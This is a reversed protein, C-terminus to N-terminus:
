RPRADQSVQRGSGVRGVAGDVSPEDQQWGKDSQAVRLHQGERAFPWEYCVVPRERLVKKKAEGQALRRRREVAVGYAHGPMLLAVTIEAVSELEEAEM